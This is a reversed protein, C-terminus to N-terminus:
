NGASNSTGSNSTSSGAGSASGGTPRPSASVDDPKSNAKMDLEKLETPEFRAEANAIRNSYVSSPTSPFDAQLLLWQIPIRLPIM